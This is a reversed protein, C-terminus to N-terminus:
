VVFDRIKSYIDEECECWITDWDVEHATHARHLQERQSIVLSALLSKGSIDWDAGNEDKGKLRVDASVEQVASVFNKVDTITVLSVKVKM